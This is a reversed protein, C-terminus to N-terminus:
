RVVRVNTPAAPAGPIPPPVAPRATAVILNDIWFYQNAPSGDGIWPAIVLQNFKMTARVGTRLVVGAKDIVLRGDIWCRLVGDRAGKGAVISNLKFYAEVLHWAGKYYPGPTDSFYVQSASWAKGNWHVSGNQYCQGDGYGDSDGNCGAVARQETVNTLDQGIRNEDINAGDQILQMPVGGNEEVYATLHTYALNSYPDELNTLFMFMHPHYPQGSGIWNSSHKIYYAIYVSDSEQFQHRGPYGGSCSTGGVAFHCELSGTGAYKETSSVTVPGVVDYWGRATLVSDEFSEQILIVPPTQASSFSGFALVAALALSPTLCIRPGQGMASTVAKELGM